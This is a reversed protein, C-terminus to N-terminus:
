AGCSIINRTGVVDLYMHENIVNIINFQLTFLIRSVRRANYLFMVNHEVGFSHLYTSSAVLLFDHLIRKHINRSCLFNKLANLFPM